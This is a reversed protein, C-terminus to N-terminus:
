VVASTVGMVILFIALMTGGIITLDIMAAKTQAAQKAAAIRANRIRSRERIM